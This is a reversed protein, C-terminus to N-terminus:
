LGACVMVKEGLEDQELIIQPNSASWYVTNHQNVHGNFTFISEDSWIIKDVFEQDEIQFELFQQAFEIRTQPDDKNLHHVTIPHYPHFQLDKKLILYATRTSIGFERAVGQIFMVDGSETAEIVMEEVLNIIQNTRVSRDREERPKQVDCYALFNDVLRSITHDSPRIEYKRQLARQTEIMSEGNSYYESVCHIKEDISYQYPASACAFVAYM